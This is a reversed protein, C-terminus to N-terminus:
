FGDVFSNLCWSRLFCNNKSVDLKLGKPYHQLCVQEPPIGGVFFCELESFASHGYGYVLILVRPLIGTVGTKARFWTRTYARSEQAVQKFPWWRLKVEKPILLALLRAVTWLLMPYSCSQDTKFCSLKKDLSCSEGLESIM